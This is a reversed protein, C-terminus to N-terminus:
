TTDTGGRPPLFEVQYSVHETLARAGMERMSMAFKRWKSEAEPYNTQNVDIFEEVSQIYGNFKEVFETVETTYMEVDRMVVQLQFFHTGFKTSLEDYTRDEKMESLGVQQRLRETRRGFAKSIGARVDSEKRKRNIVKEVLDVRKKLENIRHSVGTMERAAVEIASFDPHNDSTEELLQSLLLPYKLVRQVPKVLLSDLSWAHTLDEAVTRCEQLWIAVSKTAQLKQLRKNAADHNKLYDGYVKEMQSMHQGFVEGVFTRRDKEDDTLDPGSLSSRDETSPSGSSSSVSGRKSPSGNSGKPLIYVASVAQKLADLFSKSFAVIQDSNGFLVKIDEATVGSCANSTGKYIEETVTMDRHFSLETDVLEKLVHKRKILRRQEPTPTPPRINLEVM